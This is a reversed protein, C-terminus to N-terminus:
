SSVQYAHQSAPGEVGQGQSQVGQLRQQIGEAIKHLGDHLALQELNHRRPSEYVNISCVYMSVIVCM